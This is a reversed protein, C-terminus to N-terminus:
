PAEYGEARASKLAGFAALVRLRAAAHDVMPAPYGVARRAADSVEHMAHLAKPSLPKLAPLQRTIFAGQPDFKASQTWPNFVRFWPQADTGTSASWQWGGNNAALDGDVLHRMFFREGHRWDILLDKTLFMAVLMRLRNHMWGTERLQTIAADVLPFGTEAREFRALEEPADRWAVAETDRKFARGMSVRPYNRTVQQYFDRWALESIWTLPGPDGLDIRGGNAQAAAHLCQRPSIVGAALYPSLASTGDLAPLDRATHYDALRGTVFRALRQQAHQEGAPWLRAHAPPAFGEIVDPVPSPALEVVPQAAIPPLPRLDASALRTTWARRYPTFVTYWGGAGTRLDEPPVLTRDHATHVDIGKRAFAIRVTEDRRRENVEHERHHYLAACRARGALDVLQAALDDDGQATLVVLPVNRAALAESLARVSRLWLDVKVAADDHARWMAATIAYVAILGDRHAEAARTLAPHDNVRLDRRFWVLARSM